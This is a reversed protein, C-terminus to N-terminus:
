AVPDLGLLRDASLRLGLLTPRAARVTRDARCARSRPSVGCGLALREFIENEQGVIAHTGYLPKRQHRRAVSTQPRHVLERPRGEPLASGTVAAAARAHRSCIRNRPSGLGDTDSTLRACSTMDHFRADRRRVLIPCGRGLGDVDGM